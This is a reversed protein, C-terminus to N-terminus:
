RPFARRAFLALLAGELLIMFVEQNRIFRSLRWGGTSPVTPDRYPTIRPLLAPVAARWREYAAGHRERLRGGEVRLKRPMYSFLFVAWAGALVALHLNAPMRSMLTFGTLLLLRGLYLPNRTFAYPGDVALTTTKELYGAAWVRVIAGGLVFPLGLWLDIPTPRAAAALLAVFAFVGGLKLLGSLSRGALGRRRSAAARSM